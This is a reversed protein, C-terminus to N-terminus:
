DGSIGIFAISEPAGDAYAVIAVGRWRSIRDFVAVVNDGIAASTPETTGFLEQLLAADATTVVGFGPEKQVSAVDLVSHTGSDLSWLLAEDISAPGAGARLRELISEDLDTGTLGAMETLQRAMAARAEPDADEWPKYYDGRAFVDRRLAQLAADLDAQHPVRYDWGSAGM